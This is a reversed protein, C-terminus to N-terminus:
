SCCQLDDQLYSWVALYRSKFEGYHTVFAGNIPLGTLAGFSVILMGMGMYTGTDKPDKPVQALCAIALFHIAGSTFGHLAAFVITTTNSIM